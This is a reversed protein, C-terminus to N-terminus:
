AVGGAVHQQRAITRRAFKSSLPFLHMLELVRENATKAYERQYASDRCDRGVNRLRLGRLRRGSL